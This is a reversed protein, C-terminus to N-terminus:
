INSTAKKCPEAWGISCRTRVRFQYKKTALPVTKKRIFTQLSIATANPVNKLQLVKKPKMKLLKRILQKGPTLESPVFAIVPIINPGYPYIGMARFGDMINSPSAAKPWVKSFIRGCTTKNITHNPKIKCFLLVEDDWYSEFPRFVTEDMPEHTTSSPVCLVIKKRCSRLHHLRSTIVGWRLNSSRHNTSRFM